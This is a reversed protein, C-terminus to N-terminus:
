RCGPSNPNVGCGGATANIHAHRPPAAVVTGDKTVGHSTCECYGDVPMTTPCTLNEARCMNALAPAGGLVVGLTLAAALCGLCRM